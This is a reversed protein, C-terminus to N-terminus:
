DKYLDEGGEFCLQILSYLDEFGLLAESSVPSLGRFAGVEDLAGLFGLSPINSPDGAEEVLADYLREYSTAWELVQSSEEEPLLDSKSLIGILPVSFRFGTTMSLMLLSALGSPRRALQPDVLFLLAADESGFVDVVEKSSERFAFLEMQGPTDIFVYDTDFGELTQVIEHIRLAILDACVVQAGNPGLQYEQMVAELTLWDRVDVEPEYQLDEVGPDLNVTISDFGQSNMWTKFAYTMTTKGCGATGVLFLYRSM